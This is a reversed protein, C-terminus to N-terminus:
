PARASVLLSLWAQMDLSGCAGDAEYQNLNIVFACLCKANSVESISKM